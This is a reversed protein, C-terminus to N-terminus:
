GQGTKSRAHKWLGFWGSVVSLTGLGLVACGTMTHGRWFPVVSVLMLTFGMDVFQRSKFPETANPNLLGNEIASHMVGGAAILGMLVFTIIWEM